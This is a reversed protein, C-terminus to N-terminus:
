AHKLARLQAKIYDFGRDWTASTSVDIGHEALLEQPNRSGGSALIAEFDKAFGAGEEKYRQFASLALLNGFSYSYCYFPNQFFHPIMAWEFEFEKAVDVAGRFQADLTRRYERNIETTSAGDAIAEHARKEFITFFAQRQISAYFEEFRRFLVGRRESGDLRDFLSDFLMSESFTSASEALTLPADMSMVSHHMASMFHGAHGMEHALNFVDNLTGTFTLQVYPTVPPACNCFAGEEKGDRIGYDVHGRFVEEMYGAMRPSFGRWADLVMGVAEPYTYKREAREARAPMYLDYRRLRDMGADAAKIRFFDKFPRANRACSDLLVDVAGDAIDNSVNRASIPSPYKRIGVCEDRWNLVRNKYIESIVELSQGFKEYLRSYAQERLGADPGSILEGLQGRNLTETKGGSTIEYTFANTIKDYITVLASVGTPALKTIILEEPETLTYRATKREYELVYKLDGASALLRQANAEDLGKEWWVNFFTTRADSDSSKRDIMTRLSSNKESRTDESFRLESYVLLVGRAATLREIDRLVGGFEDSTIDGKLLSRSGEVKATLRELEGIRGNLDKDGSVLDSLNWEGRGNKAMKQL